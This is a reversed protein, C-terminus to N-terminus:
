WATHECSDDWMSSSFFFAKVHQVDCECLRIVHCSFGCKLSTTLSDVFTLINRGHKHTHRQSYALGNHIIIVSFMERARNWPRVMENFFRCNEKREKFLTKNRLHKWLETWISLSVFCTHCASISTTKSPWRKSNSLTYNWQLLFLDCYFFCCGGEGWDNYFM